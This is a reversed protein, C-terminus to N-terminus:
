SRRRLGPAGGDVPEQRLQGRRRRVALAMVILLIWIPPSASRGGMRCGCDPPATAAALEPRAFADPSYAAMLALYTLTAEWLHPISVVNTYQGNGNYEFSEGYHGTSTPVSNVMLDIWGNVEPRGALALAVLGKGYYSGGLNTQNFFPSYSDVVQQAAAQMRPDDYDHFRAPWLTWAVPGIAGVDGLNTDGGVYGLSADGFNKEIAAALSDARHAWRRAEDDHHRFNAARAASSLGLWVAIAGHLTQTDDYDDDENEACQLDNTKDVCRTLLDAARGLQTWISDLYTAPDDIWKAHEYWLWLTLGVEDIELPIPGGPRGDAYYNMAFSGAFADHGGNTDDGDHQRQIKAYFRRHQEVWDHYGAVDLAYDIFAGDRPWDLNYPPQSAISAVIAGASKDRGVAISLLARKALRLRNADSTAPMAATSLWNTWYVLDNMRLLDGGRARATDLATEADALTGGMAIFVDVAGGAPPLNWALAGDAHTLMSPSSSLAGLTSMADAYADAQGNPAPSPSADWGCHFGDPARDGGVLLYMGSDGGWGAFFADVDAPSQAAGLPAVRDAPRGPISFHVLATHAASYGLAYDRSGLLNTEDTPFFDIKEVTPSFNEFYVLRLAAPSFGADPLVEIHRALVDLDDPVVDTYRVTLQAAAHHLETVLQNSDDAQYRQTVTWGDDRAWLFAPAGGPGPSVYVGAFSGQNDRAGFHPLARPNMGNATSFDVHQYYSPSPWRLVTLEGQASLGSTAAGNGIAANVDTAGLLEEFADIDDARAATAAALTLVVILLRSM